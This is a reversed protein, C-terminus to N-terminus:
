AGAILEEFYDLYACAAAEWSFRSAWVRGEAIRRQRLEEPLALVRRLGATLDDVSEPDVYECAPGGIEPLCSRQSTVVLTGATLAELLPLGFGEELSPYCFVRAGRYAARLEEEGLYGLLRVGPARLMETLAPVRRFSTQPRGVVWLELDPQEERVRRWAEILRALNKHPQLSGVSLVYPVAAEAAGEEEAGARFKVGNYIRRVRAAPLGLRRVVQGRVYDSIAAVGRARRMGPLAAVRMVCRFSRSFWEPHLLFHLDHVTVATTLGGTFIPCTNIPHHGLVCGLGSARRSFVAQEWLQARSRSWDQFPVDILTTGPFDAWGAVGPFRRDAFVVVPRRGPARVIADYLHFAATQMGTPQPTGSFRGNLAVAANPM